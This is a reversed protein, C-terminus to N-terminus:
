EIRTVLLSEKNIRTISIKIGLRDAKKYMPTYDKRDQQFLVSMQDGVKLETMLEYHESYLTRLRAFSRIAIGHRKLEHMLIRNSIRLRKYIVDLPREEAVYLKILLERDVTQKIKHQRNKILQVGHRVFRDRVAQKTMGYLDAIEQLTLSEESYLRRMEALQAM